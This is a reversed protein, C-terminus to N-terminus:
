FVRDKGNGGSSSFGSRKNNNSNYGGGSFDEDLIEPHEQICRGFVRHLSEIMPDQHLTIACYERNIREITKTLRLQNKPNIFYYNSNRSYDNNSNYNSNYYIDDDDDGYDSLFHQRQLMLKQQTRSINNGNNNPSTSFYKSKHPFAQSELMEEGENNHHQLHHVDLPITTLSSAVLTIGSSSGAPSSM